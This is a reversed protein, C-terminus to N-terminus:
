EHYYYDIKKTQVHSSVSDGTMDFVSVDVSQLEPCPILGILTFATCFSILFERFMKLNM